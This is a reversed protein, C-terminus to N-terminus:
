QAAAQKIVMQPEATISGGVSDTGKIIWAEDALKPELDPNQNWGWHAHTENFVALEGHGYSAQRFASWAPQPNAWKTYLGQLSHFRAAPPSPQSRRHRVVHM